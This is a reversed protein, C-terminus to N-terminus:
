SMKRIKSWLRWTGTLELKNPVSMLTTAVVDGEMINEAQIAAIETETIDVIVPFGSTMDILTIDPPNNETDVEQVKYISTRYLPNCDNISLDIGFVSGFLNRIGTVADDVGLAGPNKSAAENIIVGIMDSIRSSDVTAYDVVGAINAYVYKLANLANLADAKLAASDKQKLHGPNTLCGSYFFLCNM